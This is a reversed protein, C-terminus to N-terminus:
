GGYTALCVSVCVYVCAPLRACWVLAFTCVCRYVSRELCSYVLQTIHFGCLDLRWGTAGSYSQILDASNVALLVVFLSLDPYTAVIAFHLACLSRKIKTAYEKNTLVYRLEVDRRQSRYAIKECTITNCSLTQIWGCDFWFGGLMGPASVSWKM